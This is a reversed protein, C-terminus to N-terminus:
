LREVFMIDGGEKLKRLLRFTEEVRNAVSTCLVTVKTLNCVKRLMETNTTIM